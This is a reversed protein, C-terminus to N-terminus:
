CDTLLVDIPTVSLKKANVMLYSTHANTKMNYQQHANRLCQLMDYTPSTM